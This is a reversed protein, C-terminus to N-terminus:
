RCSQCSLAYVIDTYMICDPKNETRQPNYIKDRSTSLQSDFILRLKLGYLGSNNRIPKVM